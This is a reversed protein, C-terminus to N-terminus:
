RRAVERRMGRRSDARYRQLTTLTKEDMAAVALTVVERSEQKEPEVNDWWEVIYKIGQITPKKSVLAPPIRRMIRSRNLRYKVEEGSTPDKVRM